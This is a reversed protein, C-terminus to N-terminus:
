AYLDLLVNVVVFPVFIVSFAHRFLGARAEDEEHDEHHIVLPDMCRSNEAYGRERM